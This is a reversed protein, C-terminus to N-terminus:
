GFEYQITHIRVLDLAEEPLLGLELPFSSCIGVRNRIGKVIQPSLITFNDLKKACTINKQHVIGNNYMKKISVHYILLMHFKKIHANKEINNRTGM